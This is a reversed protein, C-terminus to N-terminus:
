EKVIIQFLLFDSSVSNTECLASFQHIESDCSVDFWRLQYRTNMAICQKYTRDPEGAQFNSYTMQSDDITWRYSSLDNDGVKDILGIYFFLGEGM